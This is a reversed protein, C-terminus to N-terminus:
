VNCVDPVSVAHRINTINHSSYSYHSNLITVPLLFLTLLIILEARNLSIYKIRIVNQINIGKLIMM